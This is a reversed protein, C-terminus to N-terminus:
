CFTIVAAIHWCVTCLNTYPLETNSCACFLSSVMFPTVELQRTAEKSWKV